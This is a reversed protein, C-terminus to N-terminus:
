LLFVAFVVKTELAFSIPLPPPLLLLQFPLRVVVVLKIYARKTKVNLLVVDGWVRASASELEIAPLLKASYLVGRAM